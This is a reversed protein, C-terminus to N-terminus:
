SSPSSAFFFNLARNLDYDAALTIQVLTQRPVQDGVVERLLRVVGELRANDAGLGGADLRPSGESVDEVSSGGSLGCELGPLQLSPEDILPDTSSASTPSDGRAEGVVGLVEVEGCCKQHKYSATSLTVHEFLEQPLQGLAEGELVSPSVICHSVCVEKLHAANCHHAVTLLPVVSDDDVHRELSVEVLQKLADVGYHDAVVLLDVLQDPPLANCDIHGEYLFRLLQQFTEPNCDHVVIRRDIAERMGSLLARRFWECRAAVIVRHAKMEYQVKEEIANMGGSRFAEKVGAGGSRCRHSPGPTAEIQLQSMLGELPESVSGFQEDKAGRGEQFAQRAASPSRSRSKSQHTSTSSCSGLSPQAELFRRGDSLSSVYTAAVAGIDHDLSFAQQAIVPRALAPRDLSLSKKVKRVVTSSVRPGQPPPTMLGAVPISYSSTRSTHPLQQQKEMFLSSEHLEEQSASPSSDDNPPIIVFTMDNQDSSQLLKSINLALKNKRSPPPECVAEVLSLKYGHHANAQPSEQSQAAQAPPPLLHLQQLTSTFAEHSVHEVLDQVLGEVVARHESLREVISGVKSTCGKFVFKFESWEFMEELAAAVEELRLTFFPLEESFHEIIRMVGRVRSTLSMEEYQEKKHLLSNLFSTLNEQLIRLKQLERLHLDNRLSKALLHPPSHSSELSSASSSQIIHELSTRLNGIDCCVTQLVTSIQPVLQQALDERQHHKLQALTARMNALLRVLQSLLVPLRSKTYRMIEHQEAQSLHGKHREFEECLHVVKIFGIAIQRLAAKIVHILHAPSMSTSPNFLETMQDVCGHVDSVLGVLKHRLRTNVIFVECMRVFDEFGELGKTAEISKEATEVTLQHPLCCSYMYHLVTELVIDETNALPPPDSTWNLDPVCASLIVQHVEYKKGSRAPIIIDAFYGDSLAPLLSYPLDPSPELTNVKECQLMFWGDYTLLMLDQSMVPQDLRFEIIHGNYAAFRLLTRNGYCQLNQYTYVEYTQCSFLPLSDCGDTVM